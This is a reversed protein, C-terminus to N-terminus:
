FFSPIIPRKSQVNCNTITGTVQQTQSNCSNTQTFTEQTCRTNQAPTWTVKCCENATSSRKTCAPAYTYANCNSKKTNLDQNCAEMSNGSVQVQSVPNAYCWMTTAYVEDIGPKTGTANRTQSNCQNTQTFSDGDCKTSPDPTWVPDCACSGTTKTGPTTGTQSNCQNTTTVTQDYCVTAPDQAPTWTPICCEGTTKSGVRIRSGGCNDYQTFNVGSCKSSELPSWNPTCCSGGTKTGTEARSPGTCGDTQIFSTGQCVTNPNPSWNSPCTGINVM